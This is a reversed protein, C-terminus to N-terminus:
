CGVTWSNLTTRAIHTLALFQKHLDLPIFVGNIKVYTDAEVVAKLAANRRLWDSMKQWKQDRDMGSSDRLTQKQTDTLENSDLFEDLEDPTMLRLQAYSQFPSTLWAVRAFAESVKEWAEPIVKFEREQMKLAGQIVTDIKVKLRQMEKAQEHEFTKQRKTFYSDIWKEATRKGAFVAVATVPAGYAIAKGLFATFDDFAVPM